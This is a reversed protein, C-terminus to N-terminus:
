NPKKVKVAFAVVVKSATRTRVTVQAPYCDQILKNDM